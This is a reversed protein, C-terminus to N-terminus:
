RQFCLPCTYEGRQAIEGSPFTVKAHRKTEEFQTRGCLGVFGYRYGLHHEVFDGLGNAIIHDVLPQSRAVLAM